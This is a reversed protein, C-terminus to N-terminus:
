FVRFPSVPWQRREGIQEIRDEDFNGLFQGAEWIHRVREPKLGMLRAITADAAVPDDGIVVAGLKRTDGHLPGNGEMAVIGDAIVLGIPVTSCIDVISEHIGRWHLLNKPWGYKMGPVVGFLNKMGLTVGAWHHTKVKPMSVILNAELVTKPLWLHDLGTYHTKLRVKLLDDRNLDVFRLRLDRLVQKTGSEQLVFETDRQHGAGEAVIVEKAGLQLFAEAAAGLLAPHTTVPRGPVLDVLNPKLVVSKGRVGLGFLRLGEMVLRCLQHSYSEAHLVAVRSINPRRDAPARRGLITMACSAGVGVVLAGELLKRRDLRTSEGEEACGKSLNWTIM